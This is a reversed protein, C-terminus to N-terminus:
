DLGEKFYLLLSTAVVLVVFLELTGDISFLLQCYIFLINFHLIIVCATTTYPIFEYENSSFSSHYISLDVEQTRAHMLTCTLANETPVVLHRYETIVKRTM